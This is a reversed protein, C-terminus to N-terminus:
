TLSCVYVCYLVNGHNMLEYYYDDSPTLDEIYCLVSVSCSPEHLIFRHAWDSIAEISPTFLPEKRYWSTIGM